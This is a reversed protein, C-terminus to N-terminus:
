KVLLHTLNETIQKEHIILLNMGVHMHYIAVFLLLVIEYSCDKHIAVHENWKSIAFLNSTYVTFQLSNYSNKDWIFVNLVGCQMPLLDAEM